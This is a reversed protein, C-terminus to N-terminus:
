PQAKQVTQQQNFHRAVIAQEALSLEAITTGDRRLELVGDSWVGVRYREAAADPAAPMATVVIETAPSDHMAIVAPSAPASTAPSSDEARPPPHAAVPSGASPLGLTWNKGEKRLRGSKVAASLWALPAQHARLNMAKRLDADLVNGHETIYAIAVQVRSMGSATGAHEQTTSNVKPIPIVLSSQPAPEPAPTPAPAPAPVPAATAQAELQAVIRKGEKSKLFTDSLSYLQAPQGNPGTGSVRLVDGVEVLARLANSMEALECNLVDALDVARAGPKRAIQTCIKEDNLVM